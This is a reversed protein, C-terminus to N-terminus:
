ETEDYLSAIAGFRSACLADAGFLTVSALVVVSLALRARLEHPLVDGSEFQADLLEFIGLLRSGGHREEVGM